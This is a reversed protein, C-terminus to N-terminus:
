NVSDLCQRGERPCEDYIKGGSCCGQPYKQDLEEASFPGKIWGADRQNITEEWVAVAVEKNDGVRKCSGNM